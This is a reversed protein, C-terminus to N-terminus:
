PRQPTNSATDIRALAESRDEPPNIAESFAALSAEYSQETGRKATADKPLKGSRLAAVYSKGKESWAILHLLRAGDLEGAPILNVLSDVVFILALTGLVEWYQEWSSGPAALMMSFCGLGAVISILPGCLVIFIMNWRVGDEFNPICGVYGNQVFLRKWQWQLRRGKEPHNWILLPGICISRIRFGVAWAALTHGLEHVTIDALSGCFWILLIWPRLATATLGLNEGQSLMMGWGFMLLAGSIPSIWWPASGGNKKHTQQQEKPPGALAFLVFIGPVTLWPFGAIILLLSAITAAWSTWPKAYKMAYGAGLSVVATLVAFGMGLGLLNFLSWSVFPLAFALVGCVILVWRARDHRSHMNSIDALAPFKEM